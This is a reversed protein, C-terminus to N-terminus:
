RTSKRDGVELAHDRLAVVAGALHDYPIAADPHRDLIRVLAELLALQEELQTAVLQEAAPGEHLRLAALLVPQQDLLPVRQHTGVRAVEVFRRHAGPGRGSLEAL